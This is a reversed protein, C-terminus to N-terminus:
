EPKQADGRVPFAINRIEVCVRAVSYLVMVAASIPMCAYLAAKPIQLVATAEQSRATLQWSYKLLITVFALSLLEVLLRYASVLAPKSLRKSIWDGASFHGKTMWVAAAGYFVLGAFCLEVIEDLWHFSTFPLFRNVINLSLIVTLIAFFAVSVTKLVAGITRDIAALSATLANM